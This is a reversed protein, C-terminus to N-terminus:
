FPSFRRVVVKRTALSVERIPPFRRAVIKVTDALHRACRLQSGMPGARVAGAVEAIKKEQTFSFVGGSRHALTDLEIKRVVFAAEFVAVRALAAPLRAASDDGVEALIPKHEDMRRLVTREGWAFGRPYLAKRIPKLEGNRTRM